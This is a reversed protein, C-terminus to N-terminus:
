SGVRAAYRHLAVGNKKLWAQPADIDPILSRVLRWFRPSHNMERLHAVEHAVVYDFVFSPALILRWSYSISKSVSCSGWRSAMDRVAIRRPRTEIREAFEISRAELARRAERKLFDLLRRPAHEARGSVRITGDDDQWVPGKGREGMLIQREVGLLPIHSGPALAVVKPVRALQRAIWPAEGRAFDLARDLARQSPAVVTVEGTSPHVKVILRRARPNLRMTVEVARGEIRLLERKSRRHTALPQRMPKGESGSIAQKMRGALGMM